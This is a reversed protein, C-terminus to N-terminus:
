QSGVLHRTDNITKLYWGRHETYILHTIASNDTNIKWIFSQDFGMIYHLLCRITMGHSVVLFHQERENATKLVDTNLVTKDELWHSARRQVQHLSEGNPFRFHMNLASVKRANDFDGFIEDRKKGRWDGPSYEVLENYLYLPEKYDLTDVVIKATESARLFTSAFIRDFRMGEKLFKQGLLKAQTKGLESLPSNTPQGILDEKIANNESQGHRVLYINIPHM